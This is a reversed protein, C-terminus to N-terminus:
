GQAAALLWPDGVKSPRGIVRLDLRGLAAGPIPVELDLAYVEDGRVGMPRGPPLPVVYTAPRDRGMLPVFDMRLFQDERTGALWLRLPVVGDRRRPRELSVAVAGEPTPPAPADRVIVSGSPQRAAGVDFGVLPDGSPPRVPLRHNALFAGFARPVPWLRLVHGHAPGGDAARPPLARARFDQLDDLDRPVARGLFRPAAVAVRPGQSTAARRLGRRLLDIRADLAPGTVRPPRPDAAPAGCGPALAALALLGAAATARM